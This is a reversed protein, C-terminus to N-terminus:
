QTERAPEALRHRRNGPELGRPAVGYDHDVAIQLVRWLQNGLEDRSPALSIVDDVCLPPCACALRKGLAGDSGEAVPRDLADGVDLYWGVRTVVPQHATAHDVVDHGQLLAM